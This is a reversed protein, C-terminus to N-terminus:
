NEDDFLGKLPRIAMVGGEIDVSIVVDRIAPILRERGDPFLIHYVDNAGTPSVQNLIGYEAGSDADVVKLGILDQVFYDGTEMPADQRDIYLVRGRLAVASEVTDVGAFKVLAMSNQARCSEVRLSQAGADLYLNEFGALFEPGDCWPMVKLEGRVGHTSVIKGCELFRKKM